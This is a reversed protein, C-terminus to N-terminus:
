VAIRGGPDHIRSPETIAGVTSEAEQAGAELSLKGAGIQALTDRIRDAQKNWPNQEAPTGRRAYLQELAFVRAALTVMPPLPAAFPVGFRASLPGDIAAGVDSQVLEWATEDIVGDKDDDLAEVLYERPLRGEIQSLEVYHM